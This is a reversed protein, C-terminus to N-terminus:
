SELFIYLDAEQEVQKKWIDGGHVDDIVIIKM